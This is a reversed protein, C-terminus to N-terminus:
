RTRAANDRATVVSNFLRALDAFAKDRSWEDVVMARGRLAQARAADRNSAVWLLEDAMAQHDRRPSLRAFGDLQRAMGGVATAVVPTGCALAELTSLGLGEALSAQVVVDAARFYDFVETMPHAAPRGLVWVAPDPLQLRTALAVFDKYGGGLNIVVAEMGRARLLAVAKLVTEPDKEHSIRSALFIVFRDAPLDRKAKLGAREASDAPVFSRIDVGYYGGSVTRPCYRGAIERLYPGLAVCATALRGNITMLLRIVGEILWAKAASIQGRELRCHFYEVPALSLTTIVPVRRIAGVVTANLSGRLMEQSLVLDFNRVHQWLWVLSRYQYSLRSGPIEHVVVKVGADALRQKLGSSVFQATPVCMTLDCIESLGSVFRIDTFGEVFYLVRRGVTATM